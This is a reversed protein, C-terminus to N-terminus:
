KGTLAQLHQQAILYRERQRWDAVDLFRLCEEWEKKANTIDDAQEYIQALYFHPLALRYEAKRTEGLQRLEDEMEIASILTELALEIKGQAFYSWGLNALLEYRTVKSAAEDINGMSNALGAILIKEAVGFEGQGNYIQGLGRYAPGFNADEEVAKQYWEEAKKILGRQEYARAINYYPVVRDPNLAAARQFSQQALLFDNAAQAKVGQNNYYTALPYPLLRQQITLLILFVILSMLTMTRARPQGEQKYLYGLIGQFFQRGQKVLPSATILLILLTGLVSITDPAGGWLRKIIEVILATCLLLVTGTLIDWLLNKRQDRAASKKDEWWWWATEPPHVVERWIAVQEHPITNLKTRLQLDRESIEKIASLPISRTNELARDLQDRALLIALWNEDKGDLANLSQAYKNRAESLSIDQNM